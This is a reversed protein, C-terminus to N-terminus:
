FYTPDLQVNLLKHAHQICDWFQNIRCIGLCCSVMASQSLTLLLNHPCVVFGMFVIFSVLNIGTYSNAAAASQCWLLLLFHQGPLGPTHRMSPNAMGQTVGPPHLQM